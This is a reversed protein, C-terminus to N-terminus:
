RPVRVTRGGVRTVIEYGITGAWAAWEDASPAGTAPDGWLVATDGVAVEADGVDVVLQDMAIRGAVPHRVGRIAVEARGSAARPVGDAYGIAVLALRTPRETRADFGYSIGEGAGVEKVLVVPASLEMAPRLGLTAPDLPGEPGPRGVPSPRGAQNPSGAQNPRGAPDPRGAPSLGYAAIGVRVLDLRTAPAGLAAESSALHRVGPDIGAARLVDLGAEFRTLQALNEAESANALHSFTGRIRISGDAVARAAREAFAPLLADPIGNRSLGSDLKPHVTAGARVAADLQEVSSVGVDIGADTAARFDPDPGHLWALIPLRIGAARLALAEEVDAVGLWDAGADAAARAVPVAGHGYAQAKVVVMVAAPAVIERIRRVNSRIADLDIRARREPASM